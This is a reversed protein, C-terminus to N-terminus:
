SCRSQGPVSARVEDLIGIIEDDEMARLSELDIEGKSVRKSLDKLYTLKQPSVGASRLRKTPTKYM